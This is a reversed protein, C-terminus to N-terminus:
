QGCPNRRSPYIARLLHTVYNYCGESSGVKRKGGLLMLRLKPAGPSTYATEDRIDYKLGPPRLAFYGAAKENPYLGGGDGYMGPARKKAVELATLKGGTM